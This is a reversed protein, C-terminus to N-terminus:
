TLCCYFVCPCTSTFSCYLLGFVSEPFSCYMPVSESSPTPATPTRTRSSAWEGRGGVAVNMLLYFQLLVFKSLDVISFM